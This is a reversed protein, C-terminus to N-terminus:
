GTVSRSFRSLLSGVHNLYVNCLEILLPRWGATSLRPWSLPGAPSRHGHTLWSPDQHQQHWAAQFWLDWHIPLTLLLTDSVLPPSTGRSNPDSLEWSCQWVKTLWSIFWSLAVMCSQCPRAETWMNSGCRQHSLTQELRSLTFIYSCLRSFGIFM